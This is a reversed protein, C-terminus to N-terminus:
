PLLNPIRVFRTLVYLLIVVLAIVQIATAWGPPLPVKTTLIWVVFGLIVVVMVLVILDM